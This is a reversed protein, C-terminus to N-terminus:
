REARVGRRAGHLAAAAAGEGGGGVAATPGRAAACYVAPEGDEHPNGDDGKADPSAGEGALREIAAADGAGVAKYRPWRLAVPLLAEYGAYSPTAQTLSDAKIWGSEEGDAFRLRVENYEDSDEGHELDAADAGAAM